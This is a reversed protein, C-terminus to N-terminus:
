KAFLVKFGCAFLIALATCLIAGVPKLRMTHRTSLYVMVFGALLFLDVQSCLAYLKPNEPQIYFGLSTPSLKEPTMGGVQRLLCMLGVLVAYPLTVLGGITTASLAQLYSPKEAEATAMGILWRVLAGLALALPTGVVVAVLSLPVLLKSQLSIAQEIQNSSLQPNQELIPRLMADVDVKLGWVLSMLFFVVVMLVMAGGWVPTEHLQRFLNVPDTFVGEIQQWLSPAKPRPPAGGSFIASEPLSEPEGM